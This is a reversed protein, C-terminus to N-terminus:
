QLDQSFDDLLSELSNWSIEEKMAMDIFCKVKEKLMKTKM